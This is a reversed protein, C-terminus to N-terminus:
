FYVGTKDGEEAPQSFVADVYPEGPFIQCVSISDILDALDSESFSGFKGSLISKKLKNNFSQEGAVCRFGFFVTCLFLRIFGAIIHFQCAQLANRIKHGTGAFRQRVSDKQPGSSIKGDGTGM